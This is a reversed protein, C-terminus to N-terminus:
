CPDELFVHCGEARRPIARVPAGTDTATLAVGVWVVDGAWEKAIAIWTHYYHGPELAAGAPTNLRGSAKTCNHVSPM